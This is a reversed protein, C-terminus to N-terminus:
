LTVKVETEGFDVHLQKATNAITERALEFQVQAPQLDQIEAKGLLHDWNERNRAIKSGKATLYINMADRRIQFEGGKPLTTELCQMMLFCLKADSRTMSDTTQWSVLYRSNAYLESASRDLDAFAIEQTGTPGYAIRFFNIKANASEVSSLVLEYEPSLPIGSLEMLELGNSIAGLPNILDHCIRSSLLSALAHNKNYM